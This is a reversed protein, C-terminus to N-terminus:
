AAAAASMKSWGENIERTVKEASELYTFDHNELARIAAFRVHKYLHDLNEAIQGGKEKDLSNQLAVAIKNIRESKEAIKASGKELDKFTKLEVIDEHMAKLLKEIISLSKQASKTLIDDTQLKRKENEM